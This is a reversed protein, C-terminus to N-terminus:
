RLGITIHANRGCLDRLSIRENKIFLIHDSVTGVIFQLEKFSSTFGTIIMADGERSLRQGEELDTQMGAGFSYFRTEVPRIWGGEIRFTDRVPSLHVSHIFEVAFESGEEAAWSGYVKGSDSDRIVLGPLRPNYSICGALSAAGTIVLVAVVFDSRLRYWL